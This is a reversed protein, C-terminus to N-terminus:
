HKLGDQRDMMDPLHCEVAVASLLQADFIVARDPRFTVVLTQDNVLEVHQISASEAPYDM